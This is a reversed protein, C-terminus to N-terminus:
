TLVNWHFYTFKCNKFKELAKELEGNCYDQTFTFMDMSKLTTGKSGAFDQTAFGLVEVAKNNCMELDEDVEFPLCIPYTREGLTIGYESIIFIM